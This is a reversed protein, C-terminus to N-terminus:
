LFIIFGNGIKELIFLLFSFFILSQFSHNLFDISGSIADLLICGSIVATKCLIGLVVFSYM